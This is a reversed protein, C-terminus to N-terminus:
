RASHINGTFPDVFMSLAIPWSYEVLWDFKHNSYPRDISRVSVACKDNNVRVTMGINKDVIQAADDASIRFENLKINDWGLLIPASFSGDGGWLVLGKHALLSIHRAVYVIEWETQVTQYYTVSFENFGDFQKNCDGQFYVSYIDWRSFDLPENWVHQSLVNAIRLFDSQSWTIDIYEIDLKDYQDLVPIFVDKEGQDLSALITLPDFQYEGIKDEPYDRLFNPNPEVYKDNVFMLYYLSRIFPKETRYYQYTFFSIVSTVAIFIITAVIYKRKSKSM